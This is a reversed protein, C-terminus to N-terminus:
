KQSDIIKDEEPNIDSSSGKKLSPLKVSDKRKIITSLTTKTNEITKSNIRELSFSPNSKIKDPTSIDTDVISKAKTDVSSRIGSNFSMSALPDKASLRNARLWNM